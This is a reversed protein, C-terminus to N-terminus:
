RASGNDYYTEESRGEGNPRRWEISPDHLVSEGIVRARRNAGLLQMRVTTASSPRPAARDRRPEPLQENAQPSRANRPLGLDAGCGLRGAGSSDRLSLTAETASIYVTSEKTRAVYPAPTRSACAEFCLPLRAFADGLARETGGTAFTPKPESASARFEDARYYSSASIIRPCSIIVIAIVTLGARALRSWLGTESNLDKRPRSQMVAEILVSARRRNMKAADIM